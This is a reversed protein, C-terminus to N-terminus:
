RWNAVPKMGTVERADYLPTLGLIDRTRSLDYLPAYPNREYIDPMRIEPVYGLRRKLRELTPEPSLTVDASLFFTDFGNLDIELARRFGVAADRPDVHHWVVGGGASSPGGAMPGRYNEPDKARATIEGYMESYAIFVPRLAVVELNGRYAFSRGIDEGLIKSLGYPDTARLPHRNDIPLYLPPLMSGEGVTFGVVSDSSCLVVRKVGASEAAALLQYTGLVNVRMITEGTGSWINPVAAIHLIADCGAVAQRVASADTIDGVHWDDANGTKIDLGTVHCKGALESVVARGLLGGAGTVLVRSFKMGIEKKGADKLDFLLL